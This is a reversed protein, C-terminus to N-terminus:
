LVAHCLVVSVYHGRAPVGVGTDEKRKDKGEEEM